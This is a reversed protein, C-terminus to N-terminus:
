FWRPYKGRRVLSYLIMIKHRKGQNIDSSTLRAPQNKPMVTFSRECFSCKKSKLTKVQQTNSCHPCKAELPYVRKELATIASNLSKIKDYTTESAEKFKERAAEKGEYGERSM